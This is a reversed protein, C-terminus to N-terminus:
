YKVCWMVYNNAPRTETGAISSASTTSTANTIATEYANNGIDYYSGGLTINNAVTHTHSKLTDAQKTGIADGSTGDGRDTRTAKDPDVAAGHNFGRHFKGRDDPLNFNAGSGGYKYGYEAFLAAYATTDLSSGDRELFGTPPTESCDWIITAGVPLLSTKAAASLKDATIAGDAVMVTAIGGDAVEISITDDTSTVGIGDGAIVSKTSVIDTGGHYSVILFSDLTSSYKLLFWFGGLLEGGVLASRVSSRIAKAGLSNVNLTSAGTNTAAPKLWVMLGDALSSPVATLAVAYANVSGTDVATYIIAGTQVSSVFDSIGGSIAALPNNLDQAYVINGDIVRYSTDLFFGTYSM